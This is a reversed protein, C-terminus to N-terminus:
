YIEHFRRLLSPARVCVHLPNKKTKVHFINIAQGNYNVALLNGDKNYEVQYVAELKGPFRPELLEKAGTKLDWIEVVDKHDWGGYGCAIFHGDPSFVMPVFRKRPGFDFPLTPDSPLWEPVLEEVFPDPVVAVPEDIRRAGNRLGILRIGVIAILFVALIIARKHYVGHKM